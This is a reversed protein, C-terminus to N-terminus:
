NGTVILASFVWCQGYKVPMEGKNKMYEEIIAVSGTWLWPETGDDYPEGWKGELIGGDDASNVKLYLLIEDWYGISCYAYLSPM